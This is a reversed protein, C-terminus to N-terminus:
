EDPCYMSSPVYKGHLDFIENGLVCTYIDDPQFDKCELAIDDFKELVGDIVM